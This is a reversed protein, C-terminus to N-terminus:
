SALPQHSKESFLRAARNALETDKFETQIITLQARAEEIEGVALYNRMASLRFDGVLPGTSDAAVGELFKAAAEAFQGQNELSTALGGLSAARHFKNETYQELYMEFYRSAEQYNRSELNINGLLFTAQEALKGSSQEELLQNLSMIAVQANGQGYEQLAQAFRQAAAIQDSEQANFYYVAGLVLLVVAAAGIIIYQWYDRVQRRANLMFVTFRDEKIQRKTLKTKGYM